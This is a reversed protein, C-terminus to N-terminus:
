ASRRRRVVMLLGLGGLLGLVVTSPEPVATVVLNVQNATGTDIAFTLNSDPSVGLVLGNDTLSGTYDILRWKDGISAGAFTAWPSVDLTGDLVLNGGVVILDNISSGVTQDTGDLEFSLVSNAALNLDSSLTLTGPSAGPAVTGDLVNVVGGVTGTGGLIGGTQVTFVSTGGTSGNVLIKGGNITTAGSYTNAGGLVVTGGGSKNIQGVGSIDLNLIMTSGANQNWAATGTIAMRLRAGNGNAAGDFTVDTTAGSNDFTEAAGTLTLTADNLNTSAILISRTITGASWRLRAISMDANVYIDGGPSGARIICTNGNPDVTATNANDRWNAITNWQDDGTFNMWIAGAQASTVLLGAFVTSLAVIVLKKM